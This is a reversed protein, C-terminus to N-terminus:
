AGDQAHGPVLAAALTLLVVVLRVRLPTLKKMLLGEQACDVGAERPPLSGRMRVQVSRRERITAAPKCLAAGLTSGPNVVRNLPLSKVPQFIEPGASDNVIWSPAM